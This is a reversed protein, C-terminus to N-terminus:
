PAVVLSKKRTWKKGRTHNIIRSFRFFAFSQDGHGRGFVDVFVGKTGPTANTFVFGSESTGAYIRRPMRMQYLHQEMEKRAEKSYGKRHM